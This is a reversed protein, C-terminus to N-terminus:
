GLAEASRARSHGRGSDDYVEAYREVLREISYHQARLICARRMTALATDPLTIAAELADALAELDDTGVVWGTVGHEIVGAANAEQSIIVPRGAALSELMVLPLSEWTSFLVSIDSAHFFDEPHNTPAYQHVHAELDYRQIAEGLLAQMRPEEIVGVLALEVDDPLGQRRKLRGLGEVILHMRKQTSVRGMSVLVRRAGPLIRRRLDADAPAAFRQVNIGNPIVRVKETPVGAHACVADKLHPASVIVQQCLRHTLREYFLQRTTPVGRVTTILYSSPLLPKAIRTLFTSHYNETQIVAPALRRAVAVIGAVARANNLPGRSLPLLECPIDAAALTAAYHRNIPPGGYLCLVYPEFRSRDLRTVLDVLQSEIGGAILSDTVYLIRIRSAEPSSSSSM